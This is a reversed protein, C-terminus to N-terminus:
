TWACVVGYEGDLINIEYVTNADLSTPDFGNAWKIATVGSKASTVTLVTATSGSEFLVDICGSEPAQVSLTSVEGCIYRVGSKATITPTSGSVSVPANLMDSIKSKADETYVGVANSSVSQTNDGAAKSLGYFTSEHQHGPVIPQSVNTGTKVTGSGASDISLKNSPNNKLGTGIIIVGPDTTSAAPVNAVGNNLISTGNVQVDQVPGHTDAYNKTPTDESASIVGLNKPM